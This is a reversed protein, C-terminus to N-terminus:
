LHGPEIREQGRNALWLTTDSRSLTRESRKEPWAPPGDTFGGGSLDLTLYSALARWVHESTAISRPRGANRTTQGTTTRFKVRKQGTCTSAAKPAEGFKAYRLSM